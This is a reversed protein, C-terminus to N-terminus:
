NICHSRYLSTSLFFLYYKIGLFGEQKFFFVQEHLLCRDSLFTHPSPDVTRQNEFLPLHPYAFCVPGATLGKREEAKLAFSAATQEVSEVSANHVDGVCHSGEVKPGFRELVPVGM